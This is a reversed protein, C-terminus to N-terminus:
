ELALIQPAEILGRPNRQLHTERDTELTARSGQIRRRGRCLSCSKQRWPFDAVELVAMVTLVQLTEEGKEEKWLPCLGLVPVEAVRGCWDGNTAEDSAHNLGRGRREPVVRLRDGSHPPPADFPRSCHM